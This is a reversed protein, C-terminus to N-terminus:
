TARLGECSDSEIEVEMSKVEGKLLSEDNVVHTEFETKNLLTISSLLNLAGM